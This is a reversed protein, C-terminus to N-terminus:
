KGTPNQGIVNGPPNYSCVVIESGDSCIAKGCGIETTNYWIMQTYHGVKSYNRLTVKGGKWDAKESAWADSIRTPTYNGGYGWFLNEGYEGSTSHELDCSTAALHNAWKQAYQAVKNSWKINSVGAESRHYNHRKVMEAAEAQSYDSGTTTNKVITENSPMLSFIGLLMIFTQKIFM